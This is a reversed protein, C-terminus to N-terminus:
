WTPPGGLETLRHRRDFWADANLRRVEDGDVRELGTTVEVWRAIRETEGDLVRPADWLRVTQENATAIVGGAGFAVTHVHLRTVEAHRLAPGVPKGTAVDWVRATRDTSGSVLFRGDRSFFAEYVPGAHALPPAVPKGTAADWVRATCDASCTVARAGDLSFTAWWVEGEHALPPGVPEGTAVKYLRSVGNRGSLLVTGGDPSIAVQNIRGPHRLEAGVQKGTAVEWRRVTGIDSDTRDDTGTVVERGDATFAARALPGHRFDSVPRYDSAAFLRVEGDENGALLTHGDRSVALQKVAKPSHWLPVPGVPRGTATARVQVAWGAKGEDVATLFTAGDPAFAAHLRGHHRFPEGVPTADSVKWLQGTHTDGTATLLLTGDPSFLVSNVFPVSKPKAGPHVFEARCAPDAAVAWVRACRDASATALLGGDSTFAVGTVPGRHPLPAGFRKRSEVSWLHATRGDEDGAAILRDGRRFAVARIHAPNDVFTKEGDAAKWLWLAWDVDGTVLTKNDSNFAVANFPRREKAEWVLKGTGVEWLRIRGGPAGNRVPGEGVAALLKGDSSLAVGRVGFALDLPETRAPEGTKAHWVRVKGDAGGTAAFPADRAFCVARVPDPHGLAGLPKGTRADWRAAGGAGGTLLMEGDPSYALAHVPAAISLTLGAPAGTAIDWARVVGKDCGTVVARDDPRVAVCTVSDSDPHPIVLRLAHLRRGWADLNARIAHRLDEADAPALALSRALWVLGLGVEGSECLILGHDLTRQASMLEAQRRNAESETLANRTREEERRLDAAARLQHVAFAAGVGVATLVGVAALASAAALAPNRKAWRRARGLRGVPRALISEGGRYRRLDAALEGATRYRDAPQKSLAKLCITELDRPIRDDLSRPSRPEDHLVQHVLMRDTGRFPLEGTLMQYLIVGLSYVDSRGDVAHAEGRAQEPSMYAPTGLVNGEFTLTAEGGDWRALGFDM